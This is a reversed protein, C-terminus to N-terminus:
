TVRVHDDRPEYLKGEMRLSRIESLADGITLGESAMAASVIGLPVGDEFRDELAAIVSAPDDKSLPELSDFDVRDWAVDHGTISRHRRYFAIAENPDEFEKSLDCAGCVVSSSHDHHSM